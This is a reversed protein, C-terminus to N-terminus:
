NQIFQMTNRPTATMRVEAGHYSKRIAARDGVETPPRLGVYFSILATRPSTSLTQFLPEGEFLSVFKCVEYGDDGTETDPDFFLVNDEPTGPDGDGDQLYLRSKTLDMQVIDLSSDRIAVARACQIRQGILNEAARAEDIFSVHETGDQSHRMTGVFFSISAVVILSTLSMAVIVETLTFGSRGPPLARTYSVSPCM